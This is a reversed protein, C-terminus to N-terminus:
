MFREFWDDNSQKAGVIEVEPSEYRPNGCMIYGLCDILHDNKKRPMNKAERREASKDNAYDDWIYWSLEERLIKCNNFIQIDPLMRKENTVKDRVERLRFGMEMLRIREVPDKKAPMVSIGSESLEDWMSNGYKRDDISAASPDIWSDQIMYKKWRAKYEFAFDEVTGDCIIEDVM